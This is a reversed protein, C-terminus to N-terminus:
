DSGVGECGEALCCSAASERRRPRVGPVTSYREGERVARLIDIRPFITGSDNSAWRVFAFVSGPEFSVLRRSRDLARQEAIAGFRIRNEIRDKVWVLEVHTLATM